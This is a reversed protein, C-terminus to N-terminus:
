NTPAIANTGYILYAEGADVRRQSPDSPYVYDATPVGILIDGFGDGDVDGAAEAAEIGAEDATGVPYPSAFVLGPLQATGVQALDFVRNKLHPGGFILYVLGRRTTGNVLRTENPALVLLDPFGDANFDGAPAIRAGAQGNTQTGLFRVGPLANTGVQTVNFVHEGTLGREGFLIGVMGADTLGNPDFNPVGFAVDPLGEGSVDGLLKNMGGLGENPTVGWIEVRPPNQNGFNISPLDIRGFLVYLVGNGLLGNRSAGPAGMLIDQNGDGNFDGAGDAYGLRDGPSSGTFTLYGPYSLGRGAFCDGTGTCFYHPISNFTNRNDSDFANFDQGFTLIVQGRGEQGGPASVLLEPTGAAGGIGLGGMARVTEGFRTTPVIAYPYDVQSDDFEYWAGRFRAGSRSGGVDGLEVLANQLLNSSSVYIVYGSIIPTVSSLDADNSCLIVPDECSDGEQSDFRGIETAGMGGGFDMPNPLLDSYCHNGENCPTDDHDDFMAQVLPMGFLLEARDDGDLDPITTVNTIGDTAEATPNVFIVGPITTAVSNLPILGAFRSGARGYPMFASGVPGREFSWGFQAVVVFEDAGDNNLDPVSTFASGARDGDNFGQFVAGSLTRGIQSLDIVSSSVTPLVMIGGPAYSRVTPNRTDTIDGRVRYPQGDPRPPIQTVDIVLDYITNAGPNNAPQTTTGTGTCDNEVFCGVLIAGPVQRPFSGSCLTQVDTASRFTVDNSPDDDLDLLILIRAQDDPDRGCWSIRVTDGHLVGHVVDPEFVQIFPPRNRPVTGSPLVLLRGTATVMVSPNVGDSAVGRIYYTGVALGSTDLVYTRGTTPVDNRFGSTLVRENNNGPTADPDLLITYAANDDRDRLTWTITALDGPNVEIDTAPELFALLPQDNPLNQGNGGSTDVPIPEVNPQCGGQWLIVALVCNV